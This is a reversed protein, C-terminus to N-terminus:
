KSEIVDSFRKGCVDYGFELSRAKVKESAERAYTEDDIIYSMAKALHREGATREDADWNEETELEPILIGYDAYTVESATEGLNAEAYLIERPGSKCDAAIIPCGCVMAEVMANPFGEFLSSLVYCRANKMYQYPNRTRGTMLVAEQLEFKEILKVLKGDTLDEGVLVLRAEPHLDHVMKFAKVLHWIGKQYMIRGVNVFVFHGDYFSQEADTLPINGKSLIEEFNYPNYITTIKNGPINYHRCFDQEILKSVTVVCDAKRYVLKMAFDVIRGLASQKNELGSYNRISIVKRCGRVNAVLNVFNPSDLFSIVCEIKERQILKVLASIRRFLLGIKVYPLGNKAPVNLSHMVGGCEYEIYTDEFLIVHVHYTESLIHSLHSVVREAGGSNLTSIMLGIHQKM